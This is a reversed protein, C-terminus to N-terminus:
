RGSRPDFWRQRWGYVARIPEGQGNLAPRFRFREQALRCTIRDAEADASARIVRCSSVRGNPEVTLAIDVHEGLRVDRTAAPYDRASNIDGGTKEVKRAGSGGGGTGAGVGGAGLGIGQSGAGTGEGSDAAGAANSAGTSAVRPASEKSIKVKPAPAEIPRPTAKKGAAGEDGAAGAPALAKHEPQATPRNPPVPAEPATLTFASVMERTVSARLDPAFAKLLGIFLLLQMLVVGCAVGMRQWRPSQAPANGHLADHLRSMELIHWLRKRAVIM